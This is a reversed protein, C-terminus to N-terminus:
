RKKLGWGLHKGKKDVYEIVREMSPLDEKNLQEIDLIITLKDKAQGKIRALGIDGVIEERPEVVGLIKNGLEFTYDVVEYKVRYLNEAM